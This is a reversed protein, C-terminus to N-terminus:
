EEEKTSPRWSEMAKAVIHTILREQVKKNIEDWDIKVLASLEADSFQDAIKRSLIDCAKEAVGERNLWETDAVEFSRLHNATDDAIKM